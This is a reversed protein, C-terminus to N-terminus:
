RRKSREAAHAQVAAEMAELSVAKAPKSVAGKLATIPLNLPALKYGGGELEVFIVQDGPNLALRRRVTAPITVQGKSTLTSTSM